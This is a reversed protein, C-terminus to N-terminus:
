PDQLDWSWYLDRLDRLQHDYGRNRDARCVRPKQYQPGEPRQPGYELSWTQPREDASSGQATDSKNSPM